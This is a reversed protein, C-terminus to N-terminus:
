VLLFSKKKKKFDTRRHLRLRGKSPKPKRVSCCAAGLFGSCGRCVSHKVGATHFSYLFLCSPDANIGDHLRGVGFSVHDGTGWM